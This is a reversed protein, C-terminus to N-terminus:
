KELQYEHYGVEFAIPDNKRLWSGYKSNDSIRSGNSKKDHEPISINDNLYKEFDKKYKYKHKM